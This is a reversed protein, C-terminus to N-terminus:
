GIEEKSLYYLRALATAQATGLGDANTKPVLKPVCYIMM